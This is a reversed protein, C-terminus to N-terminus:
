PVRLRITRMRQISRQRISDTRIIMYPIIYMRYPVPMDIKRISAKRITPIPNWCSQRPRRCLIFFLIIPIMRPNLKISRIGLPMNHFWDFGALPPFSTSKHCEHWHQKQLSHLTSPVWWIFPTSSLDAIGAVLDHAWQQFVPSSPAPFLYQQPDHSWHKTLEEFSNKYILRCQSRRIPM